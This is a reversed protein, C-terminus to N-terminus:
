DAEIRDLLQAMMPSIGRTQMAERLRESLVRIIGLAMDAHNALLERFAGQSLRLLHTEEQAVATASRPAGDFLSMEGIFERTKREAVVTKETQIRVVGSVIIYMASGAEGEQFLTEGPSLRVEDLLAAIEVLINDPVQQFIGVTKLILVKEITLLMPNETQTLRQIQQALGSQPLGDDALMHATDSRLREPDLTWLAWIATQRVSPEFSYMLPRIDEYLHAAGAQAITYVTCDIIWTNVRAHHGRLIDRLRDEPALNTQPHHAALQALQEAPSLDDLLPLVRARLPRALMISLSELAYVRQERAGYRLNDSLRVMAAHDYLFALLMLLRARIDELATDLADRLASYLADNPLDAQAALLWAAQAINDDIQRHIEPTIAGTAQFRCLHLAVLVQHQVVPDQFSLQAQLLAIAPEDGRQGCIRAVSVLLGRNYSPQNFVQELTPYISRNAMLLASVAATSVSHDVLAKVVTPWYQPQNLRGTALLAARRVLPDPDALLNTLYSAYRRNDIEGLINAAFARQPPDDHSALAYLVREAREAAEDQGYRLLGILAGRQGNGVADLYPVLRAPVDDAGLAAYARLAADRVSPEAEHEILITVLAPDLMPHHQEILLLVHRRVEPAPHTLLDALYRAPPQGGSLKELMELAYIVQGPHPSKLTNRLLALKAPD